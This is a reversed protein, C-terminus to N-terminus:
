QKWRVKLEKYFRLVEAGFGCLFLSNGGRPLVGGEEQRKPFGSGKGCGLAQSFERHAKRQYTRDKAPKGGLHLGDLLKLVKEIVVKACTCALANGGFTSGHSGPKFAQAVEERAIV